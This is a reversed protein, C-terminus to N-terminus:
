VNNLALNLDCTYGGCCPRGATVAHHTAERDSTVSLVSKEKKSESCTQIEQVENHKCYVALYRVPGIGRKYAGIKASRHEHKYVNISYSQNVTGYNQMDSIFKFSCSQGPLSSM